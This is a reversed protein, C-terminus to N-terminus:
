GLLCRHCTCAQGEQGRWYGQYSCYNWVSQTDLKAGANMAGVVEGVRDVNHFVLLGGEGVSAGPIAVNPKATVPEGTLVDVVSYGTRYIGDKDTYRGYTTKYQSSM